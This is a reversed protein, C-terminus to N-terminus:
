FPHRAQYQALTSETFTMSLSEVHNPGLVNWAHFSDCISMLNVSLLQLRSNDLETFVCEYLVGICFSEEELARFKWWVRIGNSFCSTPWYKISNSCTVEKYGGSTVVFSAVRM